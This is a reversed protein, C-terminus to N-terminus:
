RASPDVLVAAGRAPGRAAGLVLAAPGASVQKHLFFAAQALALPGYAAGMEGAVTAPMWITPAPDTRPTLRSIAFGADRFGFRDGSADHVVLGLAAVDTRAEALAAHAARAFGTGSNPEASGRPAPDQAEGVGAITRLTAPGPRAALRLFVAGEGPVFGEPTPGTKVQGARLAIDLAVHDVLSDVGGVYCGAFGGEAILRAAARLAPYLAIRGGAFVTSAREEVAVPAEAIVARLLAEPDPLAAGPEPACLLLPLPRGGAPDGGCEELALAALTTLRDLGEGKDLPLASLAGIVPEGAADREPLEEFLSVGLCLAAMTQATSPGASTFAGISELALPAVRAAYYL